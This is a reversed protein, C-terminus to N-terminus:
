SIPPVRGVSNARSTSEALGTAAYAATFICLSALALVVEAARDSLNRRAFLYLLWCGWLDIASQALLMLRFHSGFLVLFFPYGPLRILSPILAGNHWLGYVGHQLLNRGLDAYTTSDPDYTRPFWILLLRLAAGAM